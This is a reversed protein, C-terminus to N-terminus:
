RKTRCTAEQELIRLAALNDEVEQFGSLVTQRYTAVNGDYAARAQQTQARRLGGDFVTEAVAAPGMSWFRSPTTLWKSLNTTEFGGSAGLTLTPYFAAIAVGIQANAAAVRREAAAIDPRRELLASPVGM